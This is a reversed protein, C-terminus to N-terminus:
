ATGGGCDLGGAEKRWDHRNQFPLRKEPFCDGRHLRSEDLPRQYRLLGVYVTRKRPREKGMQHPYQSAGTGTSEALVRYFLTNNIKIMVDASGTGLDIGNVAAVDANQSDGFATEVCKIDRIHRVNAASKKITDTLEARLWHYLPLSNIWRPFNICIEKIPFEFLIRSLIQKIDEEKNKLCNVPQVPIGYKETLRQSM